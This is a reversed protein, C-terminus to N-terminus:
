DINRLRLSNQRTQKVHQFITVCRMARQMPIVVARVPISAARTVARAVPRQMPTSYSVSVGNVSILVEGPALPIGYPNSATAVSAVCLALCLVAYRFM